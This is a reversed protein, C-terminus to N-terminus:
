RIIDAHGNKAALHLATTRTSDAMDDPGELLIRSCLNSDILLEAVQLLMLLM